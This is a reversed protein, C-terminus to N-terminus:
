RRAVLVRTGEESCPLSRWAPSARTNYSAGDTGSARGEGSPAVLASGRRLSRSDREAAHRALLLSREQGIRLTDRRKNSACPGTTGAWRMAVGAPETEEPLLYGEGCGTEMCYGADRGVETM